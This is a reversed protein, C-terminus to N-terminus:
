NPLMYREREMIQPYPHPRPQQQENSGGWPWAYPDNMPRAMQPQGDPVKEMGMTWTGAAPATPMQAPMQTPMPAPSPSAMLPMTGMAPPAAYVPMSGDTTAYYYPVTGYAVPGSSPMGNMSEAKPMEMGPMTSQTNPAKWSRALGEAYQIANIPMFRTIMARNEAAGPYGRMALITFWKYSTIYDQMTAGPRRVSLMATNFMSEEIGNEAAMSGWRLAETYNAAVGSGRLYLMSLLHQAMPVGQQAASTLYGAAAKPDAAVSKKDGADGAGQYLMFGLNFQAEKLGKEAAKDYWQAAMQYDRAKGKDHSYIVGLLYAAEGDGKKAFPLLHKKATDFQGKDFAKKGAAMSPKFKPKAKAKHEHKVPTDTPAPPASLDTGTSPANNAGLSGFPTASNNGTPLLNKGDPAVDPPPITMPSNPIALPLGQANNNEATPSTPTPQSPISPSGASPLPAKGAAPSGANAFPDFGANTSPTPVSGAVPIVNGTAPVPAISASPPTSNLPNFPDNPNASPAPTAPASPMKGASNQAGPAPPLALPAPDVAVPTTPTPPPSALVTSSLLMAVAFATVVMSNSKSRM